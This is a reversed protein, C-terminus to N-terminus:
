DEFEYFLYWNGTLHRYNELNDIFLDPKNELFEYGKMSGSTHAMNTKACLHRM